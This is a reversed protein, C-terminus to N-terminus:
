LTHTRDGTAFGIPQWAATNKAGFAIVKFLEGMEHENVLKQVMAREAISADQMGDLLGCNLLFRGQGTYGLVQLGADQGALAIGTFNVHATIDKSGVDSLADSDALHARHCMVTGMSRQPHYYEHEPFGYDLLFITGAELRDALTRIFGEAQPHIETIYDHPGEIELPPRLTTLQDAYAFASEHTERRSAGLSVRGGDPPLATRSAVLTPAISVGREHWVGNIRALLKVPMADLVENGVVVGNIKEPLSNAWHVVGAFAALREQQRARLSGSLDVITYRKIHPLAQLIQAALAGSGAGFEWVEHTGTVALAEAIQRALAQGFRPSMEPATVFDTGGALGGGPMLGFKRLDNAYYGLSPTYLAMEMFREFGLWGGALSIAERIHTQLLPRLIPTFTM